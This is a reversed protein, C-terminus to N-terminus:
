QNCFGESVENATCRHDLIPVHKMAKFHGCVYFFSEVLLEPQEASSWKEQARGYVHRSLEVVHPHKTRFLRIGSDETLPTDKKSVLSQAHLFEVYEIRQEIRQSRDSFSLSFTGMYM